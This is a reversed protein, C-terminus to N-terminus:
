TTYHHGMVKFLTSCADNLSARIESGFMGWAWGTVLGGSFSAISFAVLLPHVYALTALLGLVVILAAIGFYVSAIMGLYRPSPLPSRNM